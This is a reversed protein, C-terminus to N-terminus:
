DPPVGRVTILVGDGVVQIYPGRSLPVDPTPILGVELVGPLYKDSHNSSARLVLLECDSGIPRTKAQLTQFACHLPDISRRAQNQCKDSCCHPIEIM